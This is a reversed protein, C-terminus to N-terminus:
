VEITLQERHFDYHQMGYAYVDALTMTDRFFPDWGVPFHMRRALAEPSEADLRRHLRAITHDLQHTLRPDHFVLAGGVPGLYNISHFPRTGANLVAAFARSSGDPLRGFMRVLPLLRSVILFGFAM